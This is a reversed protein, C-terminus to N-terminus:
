QITNGTVVAETSFLKEIRFLNFVYQRLLIPSSLNVANASIITCLANTNIFFLQTETKQFHLFFLIKKFIFLIRLGPEM